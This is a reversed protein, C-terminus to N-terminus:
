RLTDRFDEATRRALEATDGPFEGLIRPREKLARVILTIRRRDSGRLSGVIPEIDTICALLAAADTLHRDRDRSDDSYAAAKLVLAAHLSPIPVTLGATGSIRLTDM